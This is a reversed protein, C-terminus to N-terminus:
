TSIPWTYGLHILDLILHKRPDDPSQGREPRSQAQRARVDRYTLASTSLSDVDHHHAAESWCEHPETSLIGPTHQRYVSTSKGKDQLTMRSFALFHLACGLRLQCQQIVDTPGESRPAQGAEHAHGPSALGGEHIHESAALCTCTEEMCQVQIFWIAQTSDAVQPHKM